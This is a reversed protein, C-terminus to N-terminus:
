GIEVYEWWIRDFNPIQAHVIPVECKEMTPFHIWFSSMVLQVGQSMNKFCAMLPVIGCGAVHGILHGDPPVPLWWWCCQGPFHDRFFQMQKFCFVHNQWIGRKQKQQTASNRTFGLPGVLGEFVAVWRHPPFRHRSPVPRRKGRLTTIELDSANNKKPIMKGKPIRPVYQHPLNSAVKVM